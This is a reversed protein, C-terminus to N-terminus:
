TSGEYFAEKLQRSRAENQSLIEAVEIQSVEQHGSEPRITMMQLPGGVKGDQSATETIVYAALSRLQRVDRNKEYLRNLLYLAYQGIGDVLFGYDIEYPAFDQNSSFGYIRAAWKSDKTQEYGAIILNLTPRVPGAGGDFPMILFKSFWEDFRRKLISQMTLMVKTAGEPSQPTYSAQLETLIMPFHAGSGAIMVGVYKTLPYLKRITDNQATVQQPDGFTGRSDTALVM